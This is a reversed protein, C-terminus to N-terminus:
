PKYAKAVDLCHAATLIVSDSILTGSCFISSSVLSGSRQHLSVVAAHEPRNPPEGQFIPDDAESSQPEEAVALGCGLPAAHLLLLAWMLYRPLIMACEGARKAGGGPLRKM